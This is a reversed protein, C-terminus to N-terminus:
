FKDIKHGGISIIMKWLPADHGYHTFNLENLEEFSMSKAGFRHSYDCNSILIFNSAHNVRWPLYASSNPMQIMIWDGYQLDEAVQKPGGGLLPNKNM